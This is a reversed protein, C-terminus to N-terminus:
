DEPAPFSLHQHIMLWEGDRREFVRTARSRIEAGPPPVDFMVIDPAHDALVGAMDGTHVAAAWHQVLERILTGDDAM